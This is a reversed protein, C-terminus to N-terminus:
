MDTDTKSKQKKMRAWGSRGGPNDIWVEVEGNYVRFDHGFVPKGDDDIKITTCKPSELVDGAKIGTPTATNKASKMDGEIFTVKYDMLGVEVDLEVTISGVKYTGSEAAQGVEVTSALLLAACSLLILLYKM